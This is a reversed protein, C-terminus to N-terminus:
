NSKTIGLRGLFTWIDSGLNAELISQWFNIPPNASPIQFSDAIVKKFQEHGYQSDIRNWLCGYTYYSYILPQDNLESLTRYPYLQEIGTFGIALYNEAYCEKLTKIAPTGPGRFSQEIMTALGENAWRYDSFISNHVFRHTEEHGSMCINFSTPLTRWYATPSYAIDQFRANTASNIIAHDSTNDCCSSGNATPSIVVKEAIVTGTYPKTQGIFDSVKKSCIKLQKLRFDAFEAANAEPVTVKYTLGDAQDSVTLSGDSNITRKYKDIITTNVTDVQKPTNMPAPAALVPSPAISISKSITKKTTQIAISKEISKPNTPSNKVSVVNAVSKKYVAASASTVNFSVGVIAVLFAVYIGLRLKPQM